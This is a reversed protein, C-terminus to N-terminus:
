QAANTDPELKALTRRHLEDLEDAVPRLGDGDDNEYARPRKTDSTRRSQGNGPSSTALTDRVELVTRIIAISNFALYALSRLAILRRPWM